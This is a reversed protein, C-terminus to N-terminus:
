RRKGLTADGFGRGLLDIAKSGAKAWLAVKGKFSQREALERAHREAQLQELRAMVREVAGPSLEDLQTLIEVKPLTDDTIGQEEIDRLLAEGGIEFAIQRTAECMTAAVLDFDAKVADFDSKVFGPTNEFINRMSTHYRIRVFILLM